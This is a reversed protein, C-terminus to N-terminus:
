RSWRRGTVAVAVLVLPCVEALTFPNGRSLGLAPSNYELEKLNEKPLHHPDREANPGSEMKVLAM